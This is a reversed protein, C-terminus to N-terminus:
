QGRSRVRAEMVQAVAEEEGRSYIMTTSLQSHTAGKRVDDPTAGAALAETIGGSRSDRNQVGKPIGLEDALQRWRLRYDNERYPLGDGNLIIPGSSPLADRSGIADFRPYALRLERLVLPALKLDATMMKKKKSTKHRLILSADIENWRMGKIWKRSGDILDSPARDSLPVWAGIVDKQRCMTEFQIAQALAIAPWGRARALDCLASAQEYSLFVQRREGNPFRMLGLLGRVRQCQDDELITAGFGTLMRLMSMLAHAMPVGSAETWVEHQRRLDRAKTDTVAQSGMDAVIRKCLKAYQVRSAHEVKRYPSDADSQYSTALKAFTTM